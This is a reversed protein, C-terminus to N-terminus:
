ADPRVAAFARDIEELLRRSQYPKSLAGQFGITRLADAEAGLWSATVAILPIRSTGEESKLHSAVDLGNMGPLALDLLILDPLDAKARHIADHGNDVEVVTYGEKELILRLASRTNEDDEVVLVRLRTGSNGRAPVGEPGTGPPPILTSM